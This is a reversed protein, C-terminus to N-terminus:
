VENSELNRASASISLRHWSPLLLQFKIRRGVLPILISLEAESLANLVAGDIEQAVYNCYNLYM